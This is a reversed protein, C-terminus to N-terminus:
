EFQTKDLTVTGRVEEGFGDVAARLGCVLCRILLSMESSLQTEPPLDGADTRSKLTLQGPAVQEIEIILAIKM